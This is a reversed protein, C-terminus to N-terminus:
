KAAAYVDCPMRDDDDLQALDASVPRVVELFGLIAVADFALILVYAPTAYFQLPWRGGLFTIFITVIYIFLFISVLLIGGDFLFPLARERVGRKANIALAAGYLFFSITFLPLGIVQYVRTLASEVEAIREGGDQAEDAFSLGTARQFVFLDDGSLSTHLPFWEKLTSFGIVDAANSFADPLFSICDRVSLGPGQSSPHILTDNELVGSAAAEELEVAVQACFNQMATATEFLGAETLASRMVWQLYDGKVAEGGFHDAWQSYSQEIEEDITQLAPSAAIAKRVMEHTFWQSRADKDEDEIRMMSEIMDAFAGQTRDNVLFAGYVHQNIAAIGIMSCAVISLPIVVILVARLLAERKMGVGHVLVSARIRSIVLVFLTIAVAPYIWVSDERLNVMFALASGLLVLWPVARLFSSRRTRFLAFLCSMVVLAIWPALANRYIRVGADSGWAVPCFLVLCFVGFLVARNMCAKRIACLFILCAACIFLGVALGYPIHFFRILALFIPFSVGKILSTQGYGGLWDGELLNTAQLAQLSDDYAGGLAWYSQTCALFIRFACVTLVGFGFAIDAKKVVVSRMGLTM